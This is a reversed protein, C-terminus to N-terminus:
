LLLQSSVGILVIVNAEDAADQPPSGIWALLFALGSYGENTPSSTLLGRREIDISCAEGWGRGRQLGLFPLPALRRVNSDQRGDLRELWSGPGM